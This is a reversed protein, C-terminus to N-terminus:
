NGPAAPVPKKPMRCGLLRSKPFPAISVANGQNGGLLFINDGEIRDIFGVHGQWGIPRVRWLVAIAGIQPACHWDMLELFSRANPKHNAPYGAKDLCWNVFAACWSTEDDKALLSTHQHYEAIRPTTGPGPTEKVGLEGRAIDMWPFM